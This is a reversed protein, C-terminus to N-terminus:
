GGSLAAVITVEDKVGVPTSLDRVVRGNVHFLITPRIRDQEDIVRFRLGPYTRDLGAMLADLTTGDAELDARGETYSFLPSPVRVRTM